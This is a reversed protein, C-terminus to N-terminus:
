TRLAEIFPTTPSHTPSHTLPHTPAHDIISVLLTWTNCLSRPPLMMGAFRSRGQQWKKKRFSKKKFSHLEKRRTQKLDTYWFITGDIGICNNKCIRLFLFFNTITWWFQMNRVCFATSFVNWTWFRCILKQHILSIVNKTFKYIIRTMKWFLFEFFCKRISLVDIM